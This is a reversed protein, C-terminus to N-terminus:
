TVSEVFVGCGCMKIQGTLGGYPEFHSQARNWVLQVSMM